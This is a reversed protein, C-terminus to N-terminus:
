SGGKADFYQKTADPACRFVTRFHSSSDNQHGEHDGTYKNYKAHKYLRLKEIAGTTFPKHWTTDASSMLHFRSEYVM